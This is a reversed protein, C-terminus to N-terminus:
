PTRVETNKCGPLFRVGVTPVVAPAWLVGCEQCAHTRHPTTAQTGEDIHRKRCAPCYLILPVPGEVITLPTDPQAEKDVLARFAPTRIVATLADAVIPDDEEYGWGRLTLAAADKKTKKRAM